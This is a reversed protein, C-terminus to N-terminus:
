GVLQKFTSAWKTLNASLLNFIIRLDVCKSKNIYFCYFLSVLNTITLDLTINSSLVFLQIVLPHVLYVSYTLRSLPLFAKWSLLGNVWGLIFHYILQLFIIILLVTM